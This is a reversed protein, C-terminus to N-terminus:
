RLSGYCKPVHRVVPMSTFPEQLSAHMNKASSVVQVSYLVCDRFSQPPTHALDTFFLM